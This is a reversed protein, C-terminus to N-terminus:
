ELSPATLNFTTVTVVQGVAINTNDITADGGGGTLTVTGQYKAVGASTCLRFYGATIAATAAASWTGLKAKSGASAADAWDSPLTMEVGLTGTAAASPGAPASGSYIRFKPSPGIDAEIADLMANGTSPAIKVAM